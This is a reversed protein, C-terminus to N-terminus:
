EYDLYLMKKSLIEKHERKGNIRKFIKKIEDRDTIQGRRAITAMTFADEDSVTDSVNFRIGGKRACGPWKALWSWYHYVNGNPRKVTFSRISVGVIGSNNKATMRDYLTESLSPLEAKMEEVWELAQKRAEGWGGLKKAPFNKQYKKRARMIRAMYCGERVNKTINTVKNKKM